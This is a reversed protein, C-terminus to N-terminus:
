QKRPARVNHTYIFSLKEIVFKHVYRSGKCIIAFPDDNGPKIHIKLSVRKSGHGMEHSNSFEYSFDM